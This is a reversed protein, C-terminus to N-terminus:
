MVLCLTGTSHDARQLFLGRHTAGTQPLELAVDEAQQIQYVGALLIMGLWDCPACLLGTIVLFSFHQM